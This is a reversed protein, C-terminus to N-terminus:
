YSSFIKKLRFFYRIEESNDKKFDRILEILQKRSTDSEDQRSTIETAELDLGQQVQPLNFTQWFQLLTQLKSM